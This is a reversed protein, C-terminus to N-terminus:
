EQKKKNREKERKKGGNRRKISAKKEKKYEEKRNLWILGKFKGIGKRRRKNKGQSNWDIAM